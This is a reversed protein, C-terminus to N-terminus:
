ADIYRSSRAAYGGESTVISVMHATEAIWRQLAPKHIAEKYNGDRLYDAIVEFQAFPDPLLRLTREIFEDHKDLTQGEARLFDASSARCRVSKM